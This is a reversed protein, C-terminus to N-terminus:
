DLITVKTDADALIKDAIGMLLTDFEGSTNAVPPDEDKSNRIAEDLIKAGTGDTYSIPYIKCDPMVAHINSVVISAKRALAEYPKEGDLAKNQKSDNLVADGDDKLLGLNTLENDSFEDYNTAIFVIVKKSREDPRVRYDLGGYMMLNEYNIMRAAWVLGLYQFNSRETTDSFLSVYFALDMVEKTLVRMEYGHTDLPESLTRCVLERTDFDLDKELAGWGGINTLNGHTGICPRNNLAWFQMAQPGIISTDKTEDYEMTTTNMTPYMLKYTDPLYDRYLQTDLNSTRAYSHYLDQVSLGPYLMTSEATGRITRITVKNLADGGGFDEVQSGDRIVQFTTISAGIASAVKQVITEPVTSVAVKKIEVKVVGDMASGANDLILDDHEIGLEDMIPYFVEHKIYGELCAQALEHPSLEGDETPCEGEVDLHQPTTFALTPYEEANPNGDEDLMKNACSYPAVESCRIERIVEKETCNCGDYVVIMAGYCLNELDANTSLANVVEPVGQGIPEKLGISDFTNLHWFVYHKSQLFVGSPSIAAGDGPVYTITFNVGNLPVKKILNAGGRAAITPEPDETALVHIGTLDVAVYINPLAISRGQDEKLWKCGTPSAEDIAASMLDFAVTTANYGDAQAFFENEHVNSLNGCSYFAPMWTGSSGNCVPCAFNPFKPSGCVPCYYSAHSVAIAVGGVTVNNIVLYTADKLTQWGSGANNVINVSISKTPDTFFAASLLDVNRVEGRQVQFRRTLTPMYYHKISPYYLFEKGIIHHKSCVEKYQEPCGNYDSIKKPYKFTKPCQTLFSNHLQFKISYADDIKAEKARYTRPKYTAIWGREKFVLPAAVSSSYPVLAMQVGDIDFRKIFKVISDKIHSIKHLPVAIAIDMDVGSKTPVSITRGMGVTESVTGRIDFKFFTYPCETRIKISKEGKVITLKFNALQTSAGHGLPIKVHRPYTKKRVTIRRSQLGFIPDNYQVIARDPTLFNLVCHWQVNHTFVEAKEWRDNLYIPDRFGTNESAPYVPFVWKDAEESTIKHEGSYCECSKVEFSHAKIIRAIRALNSTAIFALKNLNIDESLSENSSIYVNEDASTILRYEYMNFDKNGVGSLRAGLANVFAKEAVLLVDNFDDSGESYNGDVNVVRGAEFAAELLARRIKVHVAYIQTYNVAILICYLAAPLLFCSMMMVFGANRHKLKIRRFLYQFWGFLRKLVGM